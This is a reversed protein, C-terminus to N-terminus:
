GRPELVFVRIERGGTRAPYTRFGRYLSRAAQWIVEAEEGTAERVRTDISRGHWTVTAHPDADLNHVWGPHAARGWNSGIV